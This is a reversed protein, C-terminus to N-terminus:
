KRKERILNIVVKFGLILDEKERETLVEGDIHVDEDESIVKILEDLDSLSYSPSDSKEMELLDLANVKLAQAIKTVTNSHLGKRSGTEILSITASSVKARKALEEISLRKLTRYYKINIGLTSPDM